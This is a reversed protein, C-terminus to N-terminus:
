HASGVFIHKFKIVETVIQIMFECLDTGFM